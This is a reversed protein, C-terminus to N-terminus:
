ISINKRNWKILKGKESFLMSVRAINTDKFYNEFKQIDGTEYYEFKILKKGKRYRLYSKLAGDPYFTFCDGEIQNINMEAFKKVAGDNYYERVPGQL